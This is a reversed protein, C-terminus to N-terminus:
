SSLPPVAARVDIPERGLLGIDKSEPQGHAAPALYLGREEPAKEPEVELPNAKAWADKRVGTVQWSVRQGAPAGAIRFSGNRIEDKVRLQPAAAGIATLQYRFDENLIEFYDPLRIEAEGVADCTAIGDYINKRDPSEVFSHVLFKDEPALPHDIKFGGSLKTIYGGVSLTGTIDVNGYFKGALNGSAGKDGVLGTGGAVTCLGRVGTVGTGYVGNGATTSGNTGWVGANSSSTTSGYVGYGGNSNNGGVAANYTDSNTGVIANGSGSTGNVARGGGTNTAAIANTTFASTSSLGPDTSTSTGVYTTM